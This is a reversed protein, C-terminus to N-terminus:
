CIKTRNYSGCELCKVVKFGNKIRTESNKSNFLSLCKHCYLRKLEKPIKANTKMAMKKALQIYRKAMKPNKKAENFLNLIDKLVAKEEM